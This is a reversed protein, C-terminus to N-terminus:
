GMLPSLLFSPPAADQTADLASAHPAFGCAFLASAGWHVIRKKHNILAM